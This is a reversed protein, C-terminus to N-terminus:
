YYQNKIAKNVAIMSRRSPCKTPASSSMISRLTSLQGITMEQRRAMLHALMKYLKLILVPKENELEEIAEFTLHHVRCPTM